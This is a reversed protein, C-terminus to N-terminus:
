LQGLNQLQATSNPSQATYKIASHEETHTCHQKAFTIHQKTVTSHQTSKCYCQKNRHQTRHKANRQTLKNVSWTLSRWAMEKELQAALAAPALLRAPSTAEAAANRWSWLHGAYYLVALSSSSRNSIATFLDSNLPVSFVQVGTPDYLKFWIVLCGCCQQGKRAPASRQHAQILHLRLGWKKHTHFYMLQKTIM